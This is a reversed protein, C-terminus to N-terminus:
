IGGRRDEVHVIKLGEGDQHRKSRGLLGIRVDPAGPEVERPSVYNLIDPHDGTVVWGPHKSLTVVSFDGAPSGAHVPGHQRMLETAQRALDDEPNMVIVCTGSEFLVWSKHEGVIIARWTEVLSDRMEM